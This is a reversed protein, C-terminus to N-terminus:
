DPGEEESSPEAGGAGEHEFTYFIIYRGDEKKEREKKPREENSTEVM